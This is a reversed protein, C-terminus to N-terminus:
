RYEQRPATRPGLGTLRRLWARPRSEYLCQRLFGGEAAAMHEAIRDDDVGHKRMIRAIERRHHTRPLHTTLRFSESHDRYLYLCEPVARFRAGAEAMTWPFDFDDVGVSNLSEDMGGIRLALRRRWCLLHKVPSTGAFDGLSVERRSEHVSSLARGDGDIVRRSSHFFDADPESRIARALVQVAEPAWADDGLAIAVFDTEARRMGTNFAGALKRGENDILGIRPDTLREALAAALRDRVSREGIVILRWRPDTQALISDVAELLYPEHYEKVPM